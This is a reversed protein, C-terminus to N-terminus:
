PRLQKWGSEAIARLGDLTRRYLRRVPM